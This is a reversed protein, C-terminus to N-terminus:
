AIAKWPCHHSWRVITDAHWGNTHTEYISLIVQHLFTYKEEPFRWLWKGLLTSEKYFDEWAKM